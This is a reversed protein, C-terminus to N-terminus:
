KWRVKNSQYGITGIIWFYVVYMVDYLTTWFVKNRGEINKRASTFVSTLLISRVTVIGIIVFFQEWNQGFGLLLLLALGSVWFLLHSFTYFGIKKKDISRYYKGAHFHRKKQTFYSKWTTKPISLTISEPDVVVSTNKGNAHRNVFLDDDGCEIHWLDKFANQEMFFSRRYALNRGVGMFPANWLAFSFYQLGTWLTEYQIWRNLLGKQSKYQSYGLSFTKKDLRLPATMLEIWKSSRPVCDADTLLLVDNKAVKIGLTMAYKKSTLHKPTYKVTVTRLQPYISMMKELLKKTGDNSRDNIIMVDFSSYQQAFLAPILTKLNEKENHAAVIVTVGEQHSFDSKIAKEKYFFSVKGFIILIYFLQLGLALLFIIWLIDTIM